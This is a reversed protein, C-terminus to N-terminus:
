SLPDSRLRELRIRAIRWEGEERAYEEFYHGYGNLGVRSGDEANPWEVYDFMAWTGLATSEGTITIEPMHGHHVTSAGELAASVQQVVADRGTIVAEAEPLEMVVDATFVLGWDEWQRTDLLRFYRAKLRKIEEIAVLQQVPDLQDTV